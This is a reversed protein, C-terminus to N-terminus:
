SKRKWYEADKGSYSFIGVTVSNRQRDALTARDYNAERNLQAKISWLERLVEDGARKTQDSTPTSMPQFDEIKNM